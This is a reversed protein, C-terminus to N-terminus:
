QSYRQYTHPLWWWTGNNELLTKQADSGYWFENPYPSTPSNPAPPAFVPSQPQTIRCSAPVPQPAPVTAVAASTEAPGVTATSDGAPASPARAAAAPTCAAVLALILLPTMHKMRLM